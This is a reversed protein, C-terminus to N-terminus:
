RLNIINGVWLERQRGATGTHSQSHGTHYSGALSLVPDFLSTCIYWLAELGLRHGTLQWDPLSTYICPPFCAVVPHLSLETICVKHKVIVRENQMININGGYLTILVALPLM